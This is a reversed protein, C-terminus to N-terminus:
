ATPFVPAALIGCVGNGNNAQDNTSIYVYGQAGWSPGWSNKVIFSDHGKHEGYGVATIAHDMNDGCLLGNSIVGGAYFQFAVGSAQVGVVVPQNVLAAKLQDASKPKVLEYGANKFAVKSDDYKCSGTRANYPYDTELEIGKKSTYELANYLNACGGCGSCTTVCDALQQPSFSELKGNTIQNLSELSAAAAFAWCSGCSGQNKVPTVAGQSRWDVESPLDKTDFEAAANSSLFSLPSQTNLAKVHAAFEESTMDAFHNLAVQSTHTPDQNWELIKKYNDMFVRFRKAEEKASDYIKNHHSKWFSFLDFFIDAGEINEAKEAVELNQATNLMPVANSKASFQNYLAFGGVCLLATVLSTVIV